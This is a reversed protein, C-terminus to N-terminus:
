IHFSTAAERKGALIDLTTARLMSTVKDRVECWVERMACIEDRACPSSVGRELCQVPVYDGEIIEVVDAMTIRSPPRALLYGGGPGKQTLVLRGHKLAILLVRLYNRPINQATAIADLRLPQSVPYREALMLLAKLSYDVGSGFKM